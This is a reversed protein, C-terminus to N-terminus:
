PDSARLTLHLVDTKRRAADFANDPDIKFIECGVETVTLKPCDDRFRPDSYSEWLHPPELIPGDADIVNYQMANVESSENPIKGLWVSCRNGSHCSRYLYANILGVLAPWKLLGTQLLMGKHRFGLLLAKRQDSIFAQILQLLQDVNWDFVREFRPAVLGRAVINAM